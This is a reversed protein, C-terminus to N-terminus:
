VKFVERFGNEQQKILITDIWRYIYKNDAKYSTSMGINDYFVVQSEIEYNGSAILIEAHSKNVKYNYIQRDAAHHNRNKLNENPYFDRLFLLGENKLLYDINAFSKFITERSVWSLVDDIVIIDFYRM